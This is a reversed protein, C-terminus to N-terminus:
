IDLIAQKVAALSDSALAVSSGLGLCLSLALIGCLTKKLLNTM